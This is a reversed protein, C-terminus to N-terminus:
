TAAALAATSSGDFPADVNECLYIYFAITVGEEKLSCYVISYGADETFIWETNEEALHQELYSKTQSESFTPVIVLIKM